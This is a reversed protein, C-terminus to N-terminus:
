GEVSKDLREVGLDELFAPSLVKETVVRHM